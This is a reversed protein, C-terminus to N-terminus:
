YNVSTDRIVVDDFYAVTHAGVGMAVTGGLLDADQLAAVFRGDAFFAVRDKLAVIVLEHWGDSTHELPVKALVRKDTATNARAVLTLTGDEGKVVEMQYQNLSSGTVSPVSRVGIWAVSHPPTEDPLRVFARLYVDTSDRFTVTDTGEGFVHGTTDMARRFRRFMERDEARLVYYTAHQPNNPDRVTEGPDTDWWVGTAREPEFLDYWDSLGDRIVRTELEDFVQFAFDASATRAFKTEAFLCDDVRLVDYAEPTQFHIAGPPPADEIIEDFVPKGQRYIVVHDDSLLVVFDFWGGRAYYNTRKWSALVEGDGSLQEIEMHGGDMTLRYRGASSDRLLVTFGGTESYLRCALLMSELPPVLPTLEAGKTMRVYQNGDSETGMEVSLAGEVQWTEPFRSGEFHESAQEPRQIVIDDFAVPASVASLTQLLIAGSDPLPAPKDDARMRLVNDVYVFIRGGESWIRVDYWRGSQIDAGRWDRLIQETSRTIPGPQGRKLAAYGSLLELVYYGQAGQRFIIRGVSGDDLLNVRVGILVAPLGEQKWEPSRRGLIELASDLGSQGILTMNGSEPSVQWRTPDYDWGELPNEGEMDQLYPLAGEPIPTPSPLATPTATPIPTPTAPPPTPTPHYYTFEYTAWETTNGTEDQWSFARGQYDFARVIVRVEGEIETAPVRVPQPLPPPVIFRAQLLNTQADVFDFRYESIVQEGQAQVVLEVRDAEADVTVSEIALRVQIPTPTPTPTHTATPTHTPTLTPTSTATPTASPTDTPTPTDTYTATPSPTDTATPTATPTDTPARTSTATPPATPTETPTYSWTATPTVSPTPSPTATPTATPPVPSPTLTPLAAVMTAVSLVDLPQPLLALPSAGTLNILTDVNLIRRPLTPPEIAQLTEDMRVHTTYGSPVTYAVSEYAVRAQGNLVNVSLYGGPRARLLATSGLEVSVGNVKFHATYGEPVQVYLATPPEESCSTPEAATHLSFDRLQPDYPTLLVDGVMVLTASQEAPLDLQARLIVVGWTGNQTDLGHTRLAKIASLPLRDGSSAFRPLPEQESWLQVAPSVLCASNPEIEACVPPLAELANQMILACTNPIPTPPAARQGGHTAWFVGLAGLALLAILAGLVLPGRKGWSLAPLTSSIREALRRRTAAFRTAEHARKPTGQPPLTAVQRKSELEAITRAAVEQLHKPTSTVAGGVARALDDALDMATQYRDNPDKAMARQIVKDVTEPLESNHQHASPIPDNIHKLIIAIPTEAQYPLKGTLMEFLMVGLAYIDVRGDVNLGMGQEPAMYGPTGVAMGSATLGQTGEVMRAIGFDTLFANGESDVMINSPKIDRHIVGQKHAYDLASAIQRILFVVENLRLPERKLIDKLTGTPMYRMVIYPPDHEGNYDYVPLIHPHELKAILRAERQFRDLSTRESSIAKHIIKIAVMRDMNPQRARYVTAMGGRGIEDLIEYPGLKSGIM